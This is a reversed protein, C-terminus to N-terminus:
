RCEALRPYIEFTTLGPELASLLYIKEFKRQHEVVRVAAEAVDAFERLEGGQWPDNYMVAQGYYVLLRVPKALGGYHGIKAHLIEALAALATEPRYAGGPPEVFIWPVEPTWKERRAGAVVLSEFVIRSLYKGLTPYADFAAVHRGQPTQWFREAPWRRETEEVLGWM